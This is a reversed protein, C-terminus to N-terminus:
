SRVIAGDAGSVSKAYAEARSRRTGIAVETAGMEHERASDKTPIM